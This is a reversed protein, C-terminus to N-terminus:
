TITYIFCFTESSLWDNIRETVNKKQHEVVAACHIQANQSSNLRTVPRFHFSFLLSSFTSITKLFFRTNLYIPNRFHYPSTINSLSFLLFHVVLPLAVCTISATIYLPRSVSRSSPHFPIFAVPLFFSTHPYLFAPMCPTSTSSLLSSCLFSFSSSHNIEIVTPHNSLFPINQFTRATWRM